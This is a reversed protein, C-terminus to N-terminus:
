RLEKKNIIRPESLNLQYEKSQRRLQQQFEFLEKKIQKDKKRKEKDDNDEYSMCIGM